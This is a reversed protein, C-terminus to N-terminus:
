LNLLLKCIQDELHILRKQRGGNCIISFVLKKGCNSTLYGTLSTVGSISGTKGRINEALPHHIRNKLTGDVTPISLSEYYIPGNPDTSMFSLIKTLSKASLFNEHSIGCGDSMKLETQPIGVKNVMFDTIVAIGESLTGGNGFEHGITRVLQDAYFNDSSKNTRKIIQALTESRHQILVSFEVSDPIDFNDEPFKQNIMRRKNLEKTLQNALYQNPKVTVLKRKSRRKLRIKQKVAKGNKGKVIQTLQNKTAKDFSAVTQFAFKTKGSGDEYYSNDLFVNGNIKNIGLAQLQDVWDNVILDIESDFFGSLKPDSTGHIVLNGELVNDSIEGDTSISTLYQFDPGLKSLAVSTTVLKLTSAPIFNKDSNKEYLTLGDETQIHIGFRTSRYYKSSLTQNLVSSFLALRTSDSQDDEFSLRELSPLKKSINKDNSRSGTNGSGFASVEFVTILIFLFIVSFKFKVTMIDM